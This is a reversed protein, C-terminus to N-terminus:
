IQSTITPDDSMCDCVIEFKGCETCPKSLVTPLPRDFLADMIEDWMAGHRDWLPADAPVLATERIM